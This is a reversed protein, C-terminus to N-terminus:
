KPLGAQWDRVISLPPTPGAPVAFLFRSGDKTVGWEQMVGPVNFLKLPTGASSTGEDVEVAMVAGDITLYFLERGDGRWRPAFGGGESITLSEGVSVSCIAPDIRVDAVFVENRGSENSVYAVRRGNPSLQAQTQHFERAVLPAGGKPGEATCVWVDFGRAADRFTTFLMVRGDGAVSTPFAVNDTKFLLQRDGGITQQYVGLDGGGLGYVFRNNTVLLPWFELTPTFTQRIPNARRTLDYHWLDQDAVSQPAHKAVIAHGGDPSLALGAV